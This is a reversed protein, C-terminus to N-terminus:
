KLPSCGLSEAIMRRLEEPDTPFPSDSVPTALSAQRHGRIPQPCKVPLIPRFTRRNQYWCQIRERASLGDAELMRRAKSITSSPNFYVVEGTNAAMDTALGHCIFLAREYCRIMRTSEHGVSLADLAYCFTSRASFTVKCNDWHLQELPKLMAFAKKRLREFARITKAEETRTRQQVIERRAGNLNMQQTGYSGKRKFSADCPADKPPSARHPAKSFFCHRQKGSSEGTLDSRGPLYKEGAELERNVNMTSEVSSHEASSRIEKTSIQWPFTPAIKQRNPGLHNYNHLWKGEESFFLSCKDFKLKSREAVLVGWRKLGNRQRCIKTEFVLDECERKILSLTRTAHERSYGTTQCFAEIDVRGWIKSRKTVM